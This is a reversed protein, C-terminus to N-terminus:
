RYTLEVVWLHGFLINLVKRISSKKGNAVLTVSVPPAGHATFQITSCIQFSRNGTPYEPNQPFGSTSFRTPSERETILVFIVYGIM